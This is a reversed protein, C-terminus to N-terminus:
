EKLIAYKYMMPWKGIRRVKFLGIQNNCDKPNNCNCKTAGVVDHHSHEGEVLTASIQIKLKDYYTSQIRQQNKNRSNLPKEKPEKTIMGGCFGVGRFKLIIQFCCIFLRKTSHAM